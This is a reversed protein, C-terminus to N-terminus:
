LQQPTYMTSITFHTARFVVALMVVVVVVSVAVRNEITVTSYAEHLQAKM